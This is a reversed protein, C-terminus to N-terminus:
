DGLGVEWSLSLIETDFPDSQKISCSLDRSWGPNFDGGSTQLWVKKTGTFPVVGDNMDMGGTRIPIEKDNVVLTSTDQLKIYASLQKKRFTQITGMDLLEPSLTIAESEYNLGVEVYRFPESLTITGSSSVAQDSDQAMYSGSATLGVINVTEYALHDIGSVLTTAVGDYVFACDTNISTDMYEVFRKDTGNINRKVVFWAEDADGAPNPIVATSEFDGATTHSHWAYVQHQKEYTMGAMNGDNLVVWLLSNPEQQYSMAKIGPATLHESFITVNPAVYTDEDWNYKMERVKKGARQVYLVTNEARVPAINACGYETTPLVSLTTPTMATGRGGGDAYYESGSTGMLISIGPMLWKIVNLTNSDVTFQIPDDDETADVLDFNGFNGLASAWVTQPNNNTGGWFLRQQWATVSRPYDNVAAFPDDGETPAWSSLAWADHATRTLERPKYDPHALYIVDFSQAFQIGHVDDEDYPSVIDVPTINDVLTQVANNRYVRINEHGFELIYANDDGFQFPILRSKRTSDKTEGVYRLGDRRQLGGHPYVIFNRCQKLGSNYNKIDVRGHLKPSLEGAVFSSQLLHLKRAM